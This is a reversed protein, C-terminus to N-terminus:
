GLSLPSDAYDGVLNNYMEMATAMRNRAEQVDGCSQFIRSAARDIVCWPCIDTLWFTDSTALEPPYQYYGVELNAGLNSSLITMDTGIIYYRNNQTTGNPTFIHEPASPSLYGRVGTVKVYKFSRFRTLDTLDVVQTYENADITITDEVLDKFFKTRLIFYSIAANVAIGAETEKDPRSTIDTVASVMSAFDM